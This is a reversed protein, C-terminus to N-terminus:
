NLIFVATCHSNQLLLESNSKHLGVQKVQQTFEELLPTPDVFDTIKLLSGLNNVYLWDPAPVLLVQSDNMLLDPILNM